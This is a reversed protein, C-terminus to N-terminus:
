SRPGPGGAPLRVTFCTGQGPTSHVDIRGGHKEVATKVIALGLGTGPIDGVNSGRHFSEYLHGIEEPPIGIGEDAVTMVTHGGEQVVAFRVTGGQPSYKIANSLLNGVIHRLLKDDYSGRQLAPSVTLVVQAPADGAEARADDVMQQCLAPLDVDRPKFELMEADARGLLLVRDLMRSIRGVADSISDLIETREARPLQENYDRLLEGALLISALPTRFEHSTMAVFRSRLANLVKQQELAERIELESRKREGIDLISWIVGSEPRNPLVCSGGMEVWFRSGDRRPLQQECIYVGDQELQTRVHTGFFEWTTPDPLMVRTSQGILDAQAYGVMRAFKLNAWQIRRNVTLVIGVTASNLIAERESSTRQLQDELEKRRTIDMIVWVTGLSLDDSSVGKGSLSVWIEAGDRRRVQLERQYIEGKAVANAVEAGVELYQARSLYLPEMSVLPQDGSGFIQHMTDNAWRFRGQATLFAIGVLSNKLIVEREELLMRYRAQSESLAEVMAHEAAIRAQAQEKEFRMSNIRDALAFSLLVMELASCILLANSTVPNSPLWGTNHLMLVLVGLLLVAWAAMFPWAGPHARRVSAAGATLLLPVSVVSLLTTMWSSYVYPLGLAALLTLAWAVVLAKLGKDLRPLRSASALFVRAFQVGFTAAIAMGAPPSVTNWWVWQPWLFQGGLGTLAAQAVAMGAVFAVYILYAADRIAVFLLLNYLLLGALLGFYLSLAAYAVQDYAWLAHPRWLRIPASVTGQSSIRVFLAHAQGAALNLPLVHNRHPVARQAYPLQDGARQQAWGGQGDPAFLAIDDLPAYAVELLWDPATGAKADLVIRLWIASRTLGFNTAQGSRPLAKFRALAEPQRVEDLTLRQSPDELFTFANSLDYRAADGVPVAGGASGAALDAAGAGM